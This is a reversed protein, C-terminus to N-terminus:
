NPRRREGSGSIWLRYSPCVAEVGIWPPPVFKKGSSSHIRSICWCKQKHSNEREDCADGRAELKLTAAAPYDSRTNAGAFTDADMGGNPRENDMVDMATWLPTYTVIGVGYRLM